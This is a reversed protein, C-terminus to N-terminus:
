FMLVFHIVFLSTYLLLLSYFEAATYLGFALKEFINYEMNEIPYYKESLFCKLITMNFSLFRDYKAYEIMIPANFNHQRRRLEKKYNRFQM